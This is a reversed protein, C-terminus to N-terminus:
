VGGPRLNGVDIVHAVVVSIAALLMLTAVTRAQWTRSPSDYNYSRVGSAWLSLSAALMISLVNIVFLLLPAAVPHPPVEVGAAPTLNGSLGLVVHLGATAVPPVLAAAIAAGALASSLRNRTRAYAAAGGGVAGILFDMLTPHCRSAMESTIRANAFQPYLVGVGCSVVFSYLFGVAIMRWARRFLAPHSHVIALSAALIPSMLPAILMAGIVVAASSQVLGLAALASSAGIMALFDFREERLADAGGAVADKQVFVQLESTLRRREERQMQPVFRQVANEVAAYLRRGFSHGTLVVGVVPASASEGRIREAEGIDESQRGADPSTGILVFDTASFERLQPNVEVQCEPLAEALQQAVRRAPGHRYDDRLVCIRRCGEETGSALLRVTTCPARDAIEAQTQRTAPDHVLLLVQM